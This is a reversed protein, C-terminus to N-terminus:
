GTIDSQEDVPDQFILMLNTYAFARLAYAQGLYGKITASEPEQDAPIFDIVENCKNILTFFCSWPEYVRAWEDLGYDHQYDYVGWNQTGNMAIDHGMYELNMMVSLYGYDDHGGTGKGPTVLWSYFGSVYSYMFSPDAEVKAAMDEGSPNGTNTVEFSKECSVATIVAAALIFLIKKM